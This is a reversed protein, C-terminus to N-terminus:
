PATEKAQAASIARWVREPTAPMDIHCVGLPALADVIANIVAPSAGISGAEGAGKVGMPNTTCPFNEVMTLEIEPLDDARPMCYDMFSGTLLQGSRADYVTRELLAQGIGQVTGGIVQGAALMPNVLTGFDDVIVYRAIRVAGTGMDVEVECAHCGAPYTMTAGQYRAEEDIPRREDAPLRPDDEAAARAVEAFGVRRDTGVVAFGGDRPELDAEAAELLLGAIRRARELAKDAALVIAQGG